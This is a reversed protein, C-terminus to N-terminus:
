AVRGTDKWKIIYDRFLAALSPFSPRDHPNLQWCRLAVNEYVVRVLEASIRANPSQPCPVRKGSELAKIMEIVMEPDNSPQVLSVNMQCGSYMECLTVGFSWVDSRTSFRQDKLNELSQWPAPLKRTLDQLIYYDGDASNARDGDSNIRRALGFDSIKVLDHQAVLVNRAALDRHVIKNRALFEMGEAINLSFQLLQEETLDSRHETEYQVLSGHPIYELVLSLPDEIIGKVEVINRHRSERTIAIEKMFESRIKEIGCMSHLRKVAVEEQKFGGPSNLTGKYVVGYQGQFLSRLHDQPVGRAFPDLDWCREITKCIVVSCGEPTPLSTVAFDEPRGRHFDSPNKGFSYIEWLTTGFAWVDASKSRWIKRVDRMCEPAIWPYEIKDVVTLGPDALKVQLQRDTHAFVLINRCRIKGHVINMDHLENIAKVIATAAESLEVQKLKTKNSRLYVDFSGLPAWEGILSCPDSLVVGHFPLLSVHKWTLVVSCMNLFAKMDALSVDQTLYKVAVDVLNKRVPHYWKAKRIMCFRGRRVSPDVGFSILASVPIILPQTEANSVDAVPALHDPASGNTQPASGTQGRCLLLDDCRDYESPPVVDSLVFPADQLEKSSYHMILEKIDFFQVGDQDHGKLQYKSDVKVIKFTQPQRGEVTCVDLHFTDYETASERLLYSGESWEKKEKLKALSFSPGVPGHAKDRRLRVLSPSPVEQSLNFFWKELLRYYGHLASVFAEAHDRSNFHFNVPPGDKRTVEVLLRPKGDAVLERLCVYILDEIKCVWKRKDHKSKPGHSLGPFLPDYPNVHVICATKKGAEEVEAAYEESMFKPFYELASKVHTKKVGDVSEKREMVAKLKEGIARKTYHLHKRRIRSPVFKGYDSMITSYPVNSEMMERYMDLVSLGLVDKEAAGSTEETLTYERIQGIFIDITKPDLREVPARFRVLFKLEVPPMGPECIIRRNPPLWVTEGNPKMEKLGYLLRCRPTTGVLKGVYNCLDEAIFTQDGNLSLPRREAGVHILIQGKGPSGSM